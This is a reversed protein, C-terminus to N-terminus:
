SCAQSIRALRLWEALDRLAEMCVAHAMPYQRWSVTCGAEILLDRSRAALSIPVLPDDTGHAMFIPTGLGARTREKAFREALPLYTSLAVIGGLTRQSRLGAHLAIAGGQSFGAVVIRAMEIGAAAEQAVLDALIGASEGIGTADEEAARNLDRIDYWGRMTMGANITIPRYPAHPFIFRVGHDRDLGLAPVVAEFDHGDAGLGHLWIVSARHRGPPPIVIAEITL